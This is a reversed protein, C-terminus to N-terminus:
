RPRFSDHVDSIEDSRMTAWEDENVDESRELEAESGVEQEVLCKVDDLATMGGFEALQEDQVERAM